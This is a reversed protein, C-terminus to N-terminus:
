FREQLESLKDVTKQMLEPTRYICCGEEMSLGIEDRIKSWNENGEQNVLNKLRQEIDSFQAYISASNEAGATAAREMAQ